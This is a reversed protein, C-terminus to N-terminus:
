RDTAAPEQPRLPVGFLAELEAVTEAPTVHRVGVMGVAAAGKVNPPLDDVFVCDAPALDLELTVDLSFRHGIRREDETVGHYGYFEISRLLIRDPM